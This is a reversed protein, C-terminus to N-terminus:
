ARRPRLRAFVSRRLEAPTFAFILVLLDIALISTAIPRELIFWAGDDSFLLTRRFSGEAIPGLILGIVIPALPYGYRRLGFGLVGFILMVWLDDVRSQVSYVGVISLLLVTPVLYQKRVKLVRVFLPTMLMGVFFLVVNSVLFALFIGGVADGSLSFMQPGPVLGLLLLAGLLVATAADGPIALALTPIMAGGCAANNAAETAVVGGEAGEGYKADGELPHSRAIAYATFSAIIGSAGPLAGFFVGIASSRLLNKWHRLAMWLARMSIRVPQVEPKKRFGGELIQFAAESLAFLGVIIAVIHIGGSLANTGFTFRAANSLPDSGIMAILVGLAGTMLGKITSENSVVSISLLGTIALAFYEPPGFNTAVDALAPAGFIMVVGGLIGALASSAIALGIADAARGNRAMPYGDLLTAAALPTGPIRLVIASIAGGCSGAVFIAMLLGMGAVPEMHFTVPLMLIIGILPGLGPLVGVIMGVVTGFIVGGIVQWSQFSDLGSLLIDFM